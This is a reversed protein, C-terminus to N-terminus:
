GLVSSKKLEKVFPQQYIREGLAANIANAVAGGAPPLGPEGLGSPSLENQVFHVVVKPTEQMRILRYTDFNKFDPKGNKFSFDGFMAHGIGDIVGGEVQNRAGSPNIVVGCDVAVTIKKIIPFGDKLEIEAVEAVHTNHSYYAAFGQYIGKSVNGWSSKEKVLKITDEMRQGSYQIRKDTTNKVNQVLDLRLQIPDIKMETALEDFFAQEAFALFNTYHARWAGTTVNSKYSAVEVKYNPICGAPFFNPISGYMNGNM